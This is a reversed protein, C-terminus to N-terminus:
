EMGREALKMACCGRHDGLAALELQRGPQVGSRWLVAGCDRAGDHIPAQIGYGIGRVPEPLVHRPKLKQSHVGLDFHARPQCSFGDPTPVLRRMACQVATTHLKKFCLLPQLCGQLPRLSISCSVKSLSDSLSSTSSSSTGRVGRAGLAALFPAGPAAEGLAVFFAELLSLSRLFRSSM